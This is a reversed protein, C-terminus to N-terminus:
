PWVELLSCITAAAEVSEPRIWVSPPRNKIGAPILTAGLSPIDEYVFTSSAIEITQEQLSTGPQPEIFIRGVSGAPMPPSLYMGDGQHTFTEGWLTVTADAVPVGNQDVLLISIYSDAKDAPTVVVRAPPPAVASSVQLPTVLRVKYSPALISSLRIILHYSGDPVNEIVFQGAADPKASLSVDEELFVLAESFDYANGNMSSRVDAPVIQSIDIEGYIAGSKVTAPDDFSGWGGCGFCALLAAMVCACLVRSRWRGNM